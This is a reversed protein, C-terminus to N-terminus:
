EPQAARRWAGGRLLDWASFSSAEPAPTPTAARPTTVPTSYDGAASSSRVPLHISHDSSTAIALAPMSPTSPLPPAATHPAAASYPLLFHFAPDQQLEPPPELDDIHMAPIALAIDDVTFPISDDDRLLMPCDDVMLAWMRETVSPDVGKTGYADDEYWICMHVLQNLTLDPCLEEIEELSRRPKHDLTLFYIAQRIHRLERKLPEKTAGMADRLQVEVDHVWQELRGLGEEMLEGNSYTCPCWQARVMLGNVIKVNVFFLLQRLLADVVVAPVHNAALTATVQKLTVVVNAWYNVVHKRVMAAGSRGGGRARGRALRRGGGGGAKGGKGAAADGAAPDGDGDAAAEQSEQSPLAFHKALEAKAADRITVFLRETGTALQQKFLMVDVREVAPKPPAAPRSAMGFFSFSFSEQAPQEVPPQYVVQMLYYLVVHNTLWYAQAPLLQDQSSRQFAEVIRDFTNTREAELAGWQLLARYVMCAAVAQGEPGFPFRSSAVEALLLEQQKDIPLEETDSAAQSALLRQSLTRVERAKLTLALQLEQNKETLEKIEEDKVEVTRQLEGARGREEAAAALAAESAAVAERYLAQLQRREEKLKQAEEADRQASALMRVAEERTLSKASVLPRPVGPGGGGEGGAGGGMRPNSSQLRRIRALRADAGDPAAGSAGAADANAAPKLSKVMSQQRLMTRGVPLTSARSYGGEAESEEPGLSPFRVQRLGSSSGGFEGTASGGSSTRSVAVVKKEEGEERSASEQISPLHAADGHTRHGGDHTGEGGGAAAAGEAREMAAVAAAAAAAMGGRSSGPPSAISSPPLPPVPSSRSSSSSFSPSGNLAASAAGGAAGGAAAAAATEEWSPHNAPTHPSPHRRSAMRALIRSGEPVGLNGGPAGARGGSQQSALHKDVVVGLAGGALAAVAAAAASPSSSSSSFGSGGFSPLSSLAGGGGGAGGAAAKHSAVSAVHLVREQGEARERDQERLMEELREEAQEARQQEQELQGVLRAVERAKGALEKKTRELEARVEALQRESNARSKEAKERMVRLTMMRITEIAVDTKKRPPALEAQRSAELKLSHLRLRAVRGALMHKLARWPRRHIYGRWTSQIRTAALRRRTNVYATRCLHMRVAAQVVLAAHRLELFRLRQQRGREAAQITTAAVDMRLQQYAARACHGRWHTQILLAARRRHRNFLFHRTARQIKRAAENMADLRMSQLLAMQGARLFVKTLGIQYNELKAHKLLAEVYEVDSMDQELLSPLLLAFRDVFDEFTRRTPYGASCMRIAELVGGSRLQDTVMAREFMGPRSKANPKICRIYHPETRNLTEMLQALQQKFSRALSAFKSTAKGAKDDPPAPPFLAAVFPDTSKQLLVEHESVVADMNKSIFEATSYKVQGAYHEMTFDTVSGKSKSFRDHRLFADYLSLTFGEATSQALRCASDLISLIGKDGEILDLVDQNDRFNIYSWNIQEKEYEEQELKLVHQNFHQQLKENALNICFQEFSNIKFHEFGYIDLVGIIAMARADQGISRNVKQVIWDFLKSYLTKALTDRRVTAAKVDLASKITEGGVKRKVTCLSDQLKKRDCSLLSAVTDLTADAHKAIRLKDGKERFEVNGLHLVAALLRLISLQEEESIGIVRMASRTKGYEEANSSKGQLEFCRSQNLYHFHQARNPGPPLKLLEAEEPSAGDCLQYFCHYNREPDAIQVVRSRELLYSRIAAGSVRGREDFQIEIFKGFRSSNDNRVTKANGFAELLPNSELVQNEISREGDSDARGGVSALYEMVLKTTETKGAGSEGSILISQSRREERMARYANDAIAFVHPSLEGLPQGRYADRMDRDYIGPLRMFPNAAILISGTYTYILNRQYRQMLNHLVGPEHLYALKVMDDVVASEEERASCSGEGVVVQGKGGSGLAVTLQSSGRDRAVVEGEEWADAADPVWVKSGVTFLHQQSGPCLCLLAPHPLPHPRSASGSPFLLVLPPASIPPCMCSPLPAPVPPSPGSLLLALCSSPGFHNPARCPAPLRVKSKPGATFMVHQQCGQFFLPLALSFPPPALSVPNACPFVPTACPSVPIACPFPPYRMLFAPLSCRYPSDM